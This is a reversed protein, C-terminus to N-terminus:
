VNEKQKRFQRVMEDERLFPRMLAKLEGWYAPYANSGTYTRKRRGTLFVELEWTEGDLIEYCAYDKKWENLFLESYLKDVLRRWRTATIQREPIVKPPMWQTAKVLAGKENKRIDIEQNVGFYNNRQFRIRTVIDEFAEATNARENILHPPFGFMKKCSNCYYEPDLYVERGNTDCAVRVCCGCLHVRGSDLQKQLLENFAPMGNVNRATDKSGCHPCKIQAKQNCVFLSLNEALVEENGDNKIMDLVIHNAKAFRLLYEHYRKWDDASFDKPDYGYRELLQATTIEAGDPLERLDEMQNEAIFRLEAKEM